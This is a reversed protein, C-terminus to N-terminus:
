VHIMLDQPFKFLFFPIYALNSLIASELGNNFIGNIDEKTLNEPHATGIAGSKRRPSGIKEVGMAGAFYIHPYQFVEQLEYSTLLDRYYQVTIEPSLPLKLSPPTPSTQQPVPTSPTPTPAPTLQQQQQQQKQPTLPAVPTAPSSSIQSQIQRYNPNLMQQQQQYFHNPAPTSVTVGSTNTMSRTHVSMSLRHQQSQSAPPPHPHQTIGASMAGATNVPNSGPIQIAVSRRIGGSASGSTVASNSTGNTSATFTSSRHMSVVNPKLTSATSTSTGTSASSAPTEAVPGLVSSHKNANSNKLIGGLSLRREKSERDRSTFTNTSQPPQYEPEALRGNGSSAAASALASAAASALASASTPVSSGQPVPIVLNHHPSHSISQTHTIQDLHNNSARSARNRSRARLISGENHESPDM